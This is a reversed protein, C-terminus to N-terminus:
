KEVPINGIVMTPSTDYENNSHNYKYNTTLTLSIADPSIRGLFSLKGKLNNNPAVTIDADQPPPSLNYVNGLNDRLQMGGQALEIEYKYGNTISFDLTISDDAFSVKEVRLVSGNPHNTQLDLPKEKPLSSVPADNAANNNATPANTNASNVPANTPATKDGAGPICGNLIILFSLITFLILYRM